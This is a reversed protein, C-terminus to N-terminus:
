LIKDAKFNPKSDIGLDFVIFYNPTIKKRKYEENGKRQRIIVSRSVVKLLLNETNRVYDNIYLLKITLFIKLLHKNFYSIRSLKEQM